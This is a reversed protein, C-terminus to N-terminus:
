PGGPITLRPKFGAGDEEVMSVARDVEVRLPFSQGAELSPVVFTLPTPGGPPSPLVTAPVRVSGALVRVDQGAAIPPEVRVTVAAGVAASVEVLTAPGAPAALVRPALMFPVAGSELEFTRPPLEGSTAVHRTVIQLAVIGAPLDTPVLVELRDDLLFVPDVERVSGNAQVFRIKTSTGLLSTGRVIARGGPPLIQPSLSDITPPLPASFVGRTRVRGAVPADV